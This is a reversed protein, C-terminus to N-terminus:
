CAPAIPGINAESMFDPVYNSLVRARKLLGTILDQKQFDFQELAPFLLSLNDSCVEMNGVLELRRLLPLLPRPMLPDQIATGRQMTLRLSTVKCERLMFMAPMKTIEFGGFCTYSLHEFTAGLGALRRIYFRSQLALEESDLEQQDKDVLDFNILSLRALHIDSNFGDIAEALGIKGILRLTKANAKILQGLMPFRQGVYRRRVYLEEMQVNQLNIMASLLQDVLETGSVQVNLNLRRICRASRLIHKLYELAKEMSPMQTQQVYIAEPHTSFRNQSWHLEIDIGDCLEYVNQEMKPSVQWNTTPSYLAVALNNKQQQSNEILPASIKPSNDSITSTSSASDM